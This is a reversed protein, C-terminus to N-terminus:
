KRPNSYEIVAVWAWRQLYPISLLLSDVRELMGLLSSFFRRKRFPIAALAALHFFKVKVNEFCKAGSLIEPVGLIHDM